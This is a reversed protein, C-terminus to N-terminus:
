KDDVKVKMKSKSVVKDGRKVIVTFLAFGDEPATPWSVDVSVNDENKYNPNSPQLGSYLSAPWGPLFTVKPQAIWEEEFQGDREVLKSVRVVAEYQTKDKLQTITAETSYFAAFTSTVATLSAVLIAIHNKM